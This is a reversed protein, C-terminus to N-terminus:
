ETLDNVLRNLRRILAARVNSWYMWGWSGEKCNDRAIGANQIRNEEIWLVDEKMMKYNGDKLVVM